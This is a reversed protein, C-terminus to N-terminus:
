TAKQLKPPKWEPDGPIILKNDKLYLKGNPNPRYQNIWEVVGTFDRLELDYRSSKYAYVDKSFYSTTALMSMGVRLDSKVSYLSRAIDVGVKRDQRYRKCEVIWSSVVGSIDKRIGFIDYGGDRTQKTLDVKWGYHALLEAILEEFVNPPIQYLATSDKKLYEILRVSISQLVEILSPPPEEDKFVDRLSALLTNYLEDVAEIIPKIGDSTSIYNLVRLDNVPSLLERVTEFDPFDSNFIFRLAKDQYALKKILEVGSRDLQDAKDRLRHGVVCVDYLNDAVKAAAEEPQLAIDISMGEKLLRERLRIAYKQDNEVLLM